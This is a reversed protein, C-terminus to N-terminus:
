PVWASLPVFPTGSSRAHAPFSSSPALALPPFSSVPPSRFPLPLQRPHNSNSYITHSLETVVTVRVLASFSWHFFAHHLQLWYGVATWGIDKEVVWVQNRIIAQRKITELMDLPQATVRM